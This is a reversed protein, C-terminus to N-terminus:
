AYNDIDSQRHEKILKSCYERLFNLGYVVVVMLIVAYEPVLNSSMLVFDYIGHAMVPAILTLLRNRLQHEKQFHALSYFYGMLVADLFHGPVAMLARAMGIQVWRDEGLLYLVNEAGAFGMGVCVSYVIGDFREDFHPNKRLLLWLMLLKICEEPIAACFFATNFADLISTMEDDEGPLFSDLAHGALLLVAVAFGGYAVGRLLWSLPEAKYSDQWVIWYTLLVAPTIAAITIYIEEM